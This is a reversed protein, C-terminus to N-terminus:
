SQVAALAVGREGPAQPGLLLCLIHVVSASSTEKVARRSDPAPTRTMSTFSTCRALNVPM